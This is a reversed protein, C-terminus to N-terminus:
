SWENLIFYKYTFFKEKLSDSWVWKLLYIYFFEVTIFTHVCETGSATSKYKIKCVTLM